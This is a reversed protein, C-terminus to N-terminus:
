VESAQRGSVDTRSGERNGKSFRSVVGGGCPRYRCTVPDQSRPNTQNTLGENGRMYLLFAGHTEKYECNKGWM